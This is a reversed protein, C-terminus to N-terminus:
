CRVILRFYLDPPFILFPLSPGSPTLMISSCYNVHKRLFFFFFLCNIIHLVFSQILLENDCTQFAASFEEKETM